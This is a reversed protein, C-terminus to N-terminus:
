EMVQISKLTTLCDNLENFITSRIKVIEGQRWLSSAINLNETQTIIKKIKSLTNKLGKKVNETEDFNLELYMSWLQEYVDRLIQNLKEYRRYNEMISSDWEVDFLQILNDFRIIFKKLTQEERNQKIIEEQKPSVGYIKQLVDIQKSIHKILSRSLEENSSYEFIIGKVRCKEKFKQLKDYQDRNVSNPSVPKDSFYLLVPKGGNIFEEIEEVTGSEAKGTHTGIRTWFIGILVDCIKVVQKNLLEQPRDGMEPISHSEWLVPEIIVNYRLSNIANWESIITRVIEREEKIDSPSAVLFRYVTALTPM